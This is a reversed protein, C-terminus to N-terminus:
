QALQSIRAQQASPTQGGTNTSCGTSQPQLTLCFSCLSELYTDRTDYPTPCKKSSAMTGCMLSTKQYANLLMQLNSEESTLKM